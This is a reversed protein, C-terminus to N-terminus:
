CLMSILPVLAIISVLWGLYSVHQSKALVKCISLSGPIPVVFM